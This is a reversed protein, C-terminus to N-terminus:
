KSYYFKRHTKETTNWLNSAIVHKWANGTLHCKPIWILKEALEVTLKEFFTDKSDITAVPNDCIVCCDVKEIIKLLNDCDKPAGCYFQNGSLILKSITLGETELLNLLYTIDCDRLNNNSLDLRNYHMPSQVMENVLIVLNLRSSGWTAKQFESSAILTSKDMNKHAENHPNSVDFPSVSYKSKNSCHKAIFIKMLARHHGNEAMDLLEDDSLEEIDSFTLDHFYKELPKLAKICVNCVLDDPDM